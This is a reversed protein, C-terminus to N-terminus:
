IVWDLWLMLMNYAFTFVYSYMHMHLDCRVQAHWVTVAVKCHYFGRSYVATVAYVHASPLWSLLVHTRRCCSSLSSVGRSYV